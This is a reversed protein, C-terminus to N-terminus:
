GITVKEAVSCFIRRAQGTSHRNYSQLCVRVCVCLPLVLGVTVM